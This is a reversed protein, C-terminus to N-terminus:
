TFLNLAQVMLIYKYTVCRYWQVLMGHVNHFMSM